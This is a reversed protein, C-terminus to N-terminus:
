GIPDQLEWASAGITGRATGTPISCRKDQKIHVADPGESIFPKWEPVDYTVTGDVFKGGGLQLELRGSVPIVLELLPNESEPYEIALIETVADGREKLSAGCRSCYIDEETHEKGCKACFPM